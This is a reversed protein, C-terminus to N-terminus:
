ERFNKVFKQTEDKKIKIGYFYLTKDFMKKIEDLCTNNNDIFKINSKKFEDKDGDHINKEM